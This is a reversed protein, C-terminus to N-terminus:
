IKIKHKKPYSANVQVYKKSYKIVKCTLKLDIKNNNTIENYNFIVNVM